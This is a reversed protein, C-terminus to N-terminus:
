QKLSFMFIPYFLIYQLPSFCIQFSIDHVPQKQCFSPNAEDKMDM